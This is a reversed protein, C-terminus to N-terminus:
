PLYEFKDIVVEAGKQLPEKGARYIYLSIRTSEVAPVPVGSTFIHEAIPRVGSSDESGAVTRFTARGSEWRLSNTFVGPPLAFRLVNEAVYFPQVEYQANQTTPDGWRSVEFDMERHNPDGGAYDWTFVSFVVSPELQSVGRVAFTYTGYGLSRTLIIEACTWQGHTNSIRLHLAGASDVSANSPDYDNQGGRDSPANRIRWEYGSFFLTPSISSAPSAGKATAVAAIGTGVSPLTSFTLPPAFGPDVLLAAYDSGEHTSNIWTSDSNIATFPMNAVPQLWWAGTKTYLVIRQGPRADSVRGQVIDFKDPSGEAAPPIRLFKIAPQAAKQRSGCGGLFACLFLFAILARERAFDPSACVKAKHCLQRNVRSCTRRFPVDFRILEAEGRV